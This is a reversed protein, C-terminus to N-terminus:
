GRKGKKVRSKQPGPKPEGRLAMRPENRAIVQGKIPHRKTQKDLTPKHKM